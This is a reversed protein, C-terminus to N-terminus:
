PSITRHNHDRSRECPGLMRAFAHALTPAPAIRQRLREPRHLRERLREPRHLRERLREPRHLRERLRESPPM